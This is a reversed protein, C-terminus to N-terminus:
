SDYFIEHIGTPKARSGSPTNAKGREYYRFSAPLSLTKKEEGTRFFFHFAM